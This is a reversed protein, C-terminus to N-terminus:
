SRPVFVFQSYEVALQLQYNPCEESPWARTFSVADITFLNVLILGSFIAIFIHNDMGAKYCNM